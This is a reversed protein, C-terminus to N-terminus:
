DSCHSILSTRDNQNNTERYNSCIGAIYNPLELQTIGVDVAHTICPLHEHPSEAPFEQAIRLEQEQDEDHATVNEGKRHHHVSQGVM